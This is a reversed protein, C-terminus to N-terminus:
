AIEAKNDHRTGRARKAENVENCHLWFFVLLEIKKLGPDLSADRSLSLSLSYILGGHCLISALRGM